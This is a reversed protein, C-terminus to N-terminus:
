RAAPADPIARPEASKQSKSPPLVKEPKETMEPQDTGVVKRGGIFASVLGVLAGGVIIAGTTTAGQGIAYAGAGIFGLAVVLAFCQGIRAEARHARRDEIQAQIAVTEMSRRHTAEAEAMSVIREAFGPKVQEFGALMEPAPLPGSTAFVQHTVQQISVTKERPNDPALDNLRQQMQRLERNRRNERAM